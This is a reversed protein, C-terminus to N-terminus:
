FKLYLLFMSNIANCFELELRKGNVHCSTSRQSNVVNFSFNTLWFLGIKM